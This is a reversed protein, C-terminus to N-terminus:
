SLLRCASMIFFRCSCSRCLFEVGPLFSSHGRAWPSWPRCRGPDCSRCGAWLRWCCIWMRCGRRLRQAQGEPWTFLPDLYLRELPLGTRDALDLVELAIMLRSELDMVQHDPRVLLVVLGAHCEAAIRMARELAAPEATVANITIRGPFRAVLEPQALVGAYVFLHTDFRQLLLPMAWAMWDAARRSPGPNVDLGSAGARVQAAAMELLGDRDREALIRRFKPNMCHMDQGVCTMTKSSTPVSQTLLHSSQPKEGLLCSSM